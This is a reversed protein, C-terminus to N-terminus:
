EECAIQPLWKQQSRLNLNPLVFSVCSYRIVAIGKLAKFMLDLCLISNLLYFIQTIQKILIFPQQNSNSVGKLGCVNTQTCANVYKYKYKLKAYRKTCGNMVM